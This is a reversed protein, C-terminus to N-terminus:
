VGKLKALRERADELKPLGEDANSWIDLFREYERKAEETRGMEEYVKALRYRYRPNRFRRDNGTPDFVILREYEAVASELDGKAAYARAIVDQDYPSNHVVMDRSRLRPVRLKFERNVINIADEPRGEAILLEGQLLIHWNTAMQLNQLSEKMAEKILGDLERVVTRARELNGSKLEILGLYFKLLITNHLERDPERKRAAYSWEIFLARAEDLRGSEYLMQARYLPMNYMTSELKASDILRQAEDLDAFCQEHRGLQFNTRGKWHYGIGRLVDSSVTHIFREIWIRASDYDAMPMYTFYLHIMSFYFDSKIDIAKYFHSIAKDLKGMCFYLEGMSDYPNADGPALELYRQFYEIAKEYERMEMYTYALGNAAQAYLPDLTLATNFAEISEDYREDFSYYWALIWYARKEKPYKRILERLLQAQLEEDKEIVGAYAWEIYFRERETAKSAYLRAKKYAERQLGDELTRGYLHGLFLYAVAFTSDHAVARELSRRAETFYERDYEDKGKLFLHYAEMSTTTVDIISKKTEQIKRESLGIGRSIKRSLEDIQHDLISEVGDGKASATELLEKTGVDLVKLDTAFTNGAKVFSGIVIVEIGDLRCLEFGLETDIIEVEERGLRRMLDRMREWTIVSIYKSQELNTILLSPIAKALYNYSPDGTMNEFSIVAIPKPAAVLQQESVVSKLVMYGVVVTAIIAVLAISMVNTKRRNKYPRRYRRPTGVQKSSSERLGELEYMIERANQYREDISRALAKDVIDLIGQPLDSRYSSLPEPEENVIEYLLAAEHEGKFPTEGALMEYLITGLSFIDSRQDTEQGKAQEPSMYAATGLTSGEKTLRTRGRLKAIGFDIIKAEDRETIIINSPKIDRHVIEKEHARALGSAIQTVINLTEDVSINGQDIRERLTEGGYYAMVIFTRNDSTKDVEYITGINAHDLASAAKAEHIFRKRAEEDKSLHLPLFKIAVHRDLTADLAKYVVGMGGEGLKEIIKYHSITEGIM